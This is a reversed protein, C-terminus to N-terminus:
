CIYSCQSYQIFMNKTYMAPMQHSRSHVIHGINHFRNHEIHCQINISQKLTLCIHKPLFTNLIGLLCLLLHVDMDELLCAMAVDNNKITCTKLNRAFEEDNLVLHEGGIQQLSPRRM